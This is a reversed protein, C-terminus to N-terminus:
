EVKSGKAGKRPASEMLVIPVNIRTSELTSLRFHPKAGIGQPM